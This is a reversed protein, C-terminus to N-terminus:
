GHAAICETATRRGIAGQTKVVTCCFARVVANEPYETMVESVQVMNAVAIRKVSKNEGYM